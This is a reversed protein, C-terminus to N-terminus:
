SGAAKEPKPLDKETALRIGMNKMLGIMSLNVSQRVQNFDGAPITATFFEVHVLYANRVIDSLFVTYNEVERTGQLLEEIATVLRKVQEYDTEGELELQVFARRQTQLSLNDTISDVMQKNPVTVYTKQTTRLRTSRLGIREITGTISHVKVQDGTSFPRDFFIIFSAILNEISERTALAIAAGALSLGTILSSIRFNFGYKLAMLVGLIVLLVKFFDKFFVILQNENNKEGMVAKQALIIAIFDIIRLMLWIFSYIITIIAAVEVIRHLSVKYVAVNLVAPFRLKEFAIITVLTIIFNELPPVVLKVFRDRDIGTVIRRVIRFVVGAVIRSIARKLFVTLLIVGAILLYHGLPNDLVILDFIKMM